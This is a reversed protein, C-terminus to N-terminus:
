KVDGLIIDLLDSIVREVDVPWDLLTMMVWAAGVFVVAESM